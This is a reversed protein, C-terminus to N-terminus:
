ASRPAMRPATSYIHNAATLSGAGPMNQVVFTAGPMHKGVHRAFLRTYADYGGGAELGVILNITRGSRFLM